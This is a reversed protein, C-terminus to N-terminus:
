AIQHFYLEDGKNDASDAGAMGAAQKLVFPRLIGLM